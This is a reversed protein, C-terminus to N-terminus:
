CRAAFLFSRRLDDAREFGSVADLLEEDGLDSSESGLLNLSMVDGSDAVNEPGRGVAVPGVDL